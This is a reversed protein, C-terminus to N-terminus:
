CIVEGYQNDSILYVGLIDDYHKNQNPKFRGFKFVINSFNNQCFTIINKIEEKTHGTYIVFTDFCGHKRFDSILKSIDNWETIPELGGIVIAKSIPNLIYRRFIQETSIDIDGQNSLESNQCIEIPINAETCCKWNCTGLGIFMSPIKYNIFDEDVINKIKM